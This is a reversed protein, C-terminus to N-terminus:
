ILQPTHHYILEHVLHLDHTQIERAAYPMQYPIKKRRTTSM